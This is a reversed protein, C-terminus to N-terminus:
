PVHTHELPGLIANIKFLLRKLARTVLKILEKPIEAGLYFNEEFPGNQPKKPCYLIWILRSVTSIHNNQHLTMLYLMFVYDLLKETAHYFDCGAKACAVNGIKMCWLFIFLSQSVM